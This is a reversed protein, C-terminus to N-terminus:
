EKMPVVGLEFVGVIMLSADTNVWVQFGPYELIRNASTRPDHAIRQPAGLRAIVEQESLGVRVGDKTAYRRDKFVIVRDVAGEPSLSVGRGGATGPENRFWLFLRGGTSAPAVASPKGLVAEVDSYAQGLVITGVGHGPTILYADAVPQAQVPVALLVVLVVWSWRM